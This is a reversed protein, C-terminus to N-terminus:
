RMYKFVNTHLFTEPGLNETEFDKNILEMNELCGHCIDSVTCFSPGVALAHRLSEPRQYELEIRL